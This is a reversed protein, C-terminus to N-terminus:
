SKSASAAAKAAKKEKKTMKPSPSAAKSGGSAAPASPKSERSKWCKEAFKCAGSLFFKCPIGKPSPSRSRNGKGRGKKGKEKGPSRSRNKERNCNERDCKGESEFQYCVREGQAAPSSSRSGKGKGRGRGKGKAPAAPNSKKKDGSPAQSIANRNGERLKRELYSRVTRMLFNYNKDEHGKPLRDYREIETRLVYSVKIQRYLLHVLIDESLPYQVGVLVEDWNAFFKDLGQDGKLTVSLLDNLEYVSGAAEDVRFRDYILWLFQRGKILRGAKDEQESRLSITRGLIGKSIEAIAATLKMDLSQFVRPNTALTEFTATPSEM